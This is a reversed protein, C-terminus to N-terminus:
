RRVAKQIHQPQQGELVAVIFGFGAATFGLGAVAIVPAACLLAVFIIARPLSKSAWRVLLTFLLIFLCALSLIVVWALNIGLLFAFVPIAILIPVLIL